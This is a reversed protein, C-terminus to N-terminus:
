LLLLLLLMSVILGAIPAPRLPSASYRMNLFTGTANFFQNSQVFSLEQAGWSCANLIM